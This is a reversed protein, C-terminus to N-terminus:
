KFPWAMHSSHKPLGQSYSNYNWLIFSLSPMLWWKYHTEQPTSKKTHLRDHCALWLFTKVRPLTHSKWLWNWAAVNHTLPLNAALLYTTCPNLQGNPSLSWTPLDSLTSLLPRPTARIIDHVQDPLAFSLANLNWNRNADWCDKVKMTTNLIHLPGQILNRLPGHSIWNDYWFHTTEGNRIIWCSGEDCISKAKLISNWTLSKRKTVNSTSPYKKRFTDAWITDAKTRFEWLRKALLARNRSMSKSIGLGGLHKPKTVVDWGIAHMRQRTTLDGWLFNQNIKDLETCTKHPLMTCQMLHTPMASTVSNILM